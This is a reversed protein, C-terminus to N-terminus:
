NEWESLPDLYVIPKPPRPARSPRALSRGPKMKVAVPGPGVMSDCGYCFHRNGVYMDTASGRVVDGTSFGGRADFWRSKPGLYTNKFSKQVGFEGVAALMVQRMAKSGPVYTFRGCECRPSEELLWYLPATIADVQPEDPSMSSFLKTWARGHSRAIRLDVGWEWIESYSRGRQHAWIRFPGAALRWLNDHKHFVWDAM